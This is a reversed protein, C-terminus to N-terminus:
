EEPIETVLLEYMSNNTKFLIRHGMDELIETVDSTIFTPKLKSALVMFPLGVHPKSFEWMLGHRKTGDPYKERQPIVADELTNIKRLTIRVPYNM